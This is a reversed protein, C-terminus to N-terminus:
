AETALSKEYRGLAQYLTGLDVGYTAVLAGVVEQPRARLDTITWIGRAKLERDFDQPTAKMEILRWVEVGYPIGQEPNRAVVKDGQQRLSERSIWSRQPLNLSNTWQVLVLGNESGIIQVSILNDSHTDM